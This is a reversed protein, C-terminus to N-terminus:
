RLWERIPKIWVELPTYFAGHKRGTTISIEDFTRLDSREALRQCPGPSDTTEYISLLRGSLHIPPDFEIDGEFCGAMLVTNIDHSNFRSATLATLHSGRSFGILTINSAPVGADLLSDVWSSFTAVYTSIETNAPRHHAILNFGGIDFLRNKIAPFDYVGYESHGPTANDGEVILGHSYFVYKKNKNIENPFTAFIEEGLVLAPFISLVLLLLSKSKM